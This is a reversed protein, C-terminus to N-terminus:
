RPASRHDRVLQAPRNASGPQQEQLTTSEYYKVAATYGESGLLCNFRHQAAQHM